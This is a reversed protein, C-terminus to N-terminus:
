RNRHTRITQTGQHKRERGRRRRSCRLSVHDRRPDDNWRTGHVNCGLRHPPDHTQKHIAAIADLGTVFKEFEISSLKDGIAGGCLGLQSRRLDLPIPPSPCGTTEFAQRLGVGEGFVPQVFGIVRERSRFLADLKRSGFHRSDFGQQGFPAQQCWESPNDNGPVRLQTLQSLWASRQQSKLIMGAQLQVSSHLFSIEATNPHSSWGLDTDIREAIVPQLSPYVGEDWGSISIM